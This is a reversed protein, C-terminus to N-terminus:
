RVGGDRGLDPELSTEAELPPLAASREALVRALPIGANGTGASYHAHRLMYGNVLRREPLTLEPYAAFPVTGPIPTPAAAVPPGSDAVQETVMGNGGMDAVLVVTAAAIAAVGAALAPTLGPRLWRSGAETDERELAAALRAAAEDTGLSEGRMVARAQHLRDWRDRLEDDRSIEELVRKLEFPKAEGDMAASFSETFAKSM